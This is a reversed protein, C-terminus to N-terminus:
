SKKLKKSIMVPLYMVIVVGAIIVPFGLLHSGWMKEFLALPNGPDARMLFMFNTDLLLNLLYTPIAMLVLLGLARPIYKLHLDLKGNVAQMLPYLVLLIHVVSSHIHYINAVPLTTWTPFLLAALAGPICVLYLFNDLLKSPRRAHLAILFINISCLHLPLYDPEWLGIQKFLEDALLLVAVGIRWAKRGTSGTRRYLLASAVALIVMLALWILHLGSFHSFGLGEPINDTSYWFHEMITGKGCGNVPMAKHRDAAVIIAYIEM